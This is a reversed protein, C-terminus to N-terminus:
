RVIMHNNYILNKGNLLLCHSGGAAIDIIKGLSNCKSLARSTNYQLTSDNESNLQGYETNGWGFVEGKDKFITLGDTYIIFLNIYIVFEHNFKGNLALVCDAACSLKIIKEGAIDGQVQGIIHSSFFTGNGLQGDSGWGCAFVKGSETLFMSFNFKNKWLIKRM